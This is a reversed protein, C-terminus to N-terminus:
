IQFDKLKSPNFVNKQGKGIIEIKNDSVLVAQNNNIAIIASNINAKNEKIYSRNSEEFHPFIFFPIINLSTLDKLNILNEDAPEWSALEITRSIIISGASAGVYVGNREIFRKILQNLGTRKIGDLYAFTNGGCVYVVDINDLENNNIERDLSFVTINDTKIGIKNLERITKEVWQWDDSNRIATNVLFLKIISPEKNILKLFAKEIEKGGEFGISTLLIKM